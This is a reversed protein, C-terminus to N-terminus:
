RGVLDVGNDICRRGDQSCLALSRVTREADAESVCETEPADCEFEAVYHAGAYGFSVQGGSYTALFGSYYDTGADSGSKGAAPTGDNFAQNTGHIILTYGAAKKTDKADGEIRRVVQYGDKFIMISSPSASAGKGSLVGKSSDSGRGLDSALEGPFFVPVPQPDFTSKAREEFSWVSGAGKTQSLRDFEREFRSTDIQAPKLPAVSGTQAAAISPVAVALIACVLSSRKCPSHVFRRSVGRLVLMKGRAIFFYFEIDRLTDSAQVLTLRIM